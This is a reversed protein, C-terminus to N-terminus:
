GDIWRDTWGNLNGREPNKRQLITAIKWQLLKYLVTRFQKNPFIRCFFMSHPSSIQIINIITFSRNSMQDYEIIKTIWWGSWISRPHLLACENESDAELRKMAARVKQNYLASVWIIDVNTSSNVESPINWQVSWTCWWVTHTPDIPFNKPPDPFRYEVEMDAMILSCSWANCLEHWM